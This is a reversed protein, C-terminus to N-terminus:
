KFLDDLFPKKNASNITLRYPDFLPSMIKNTDTVYKKKLQMRALERLIATYLYESPIEESVMLIMQSYDFGHRFSASVWNEGPLDEEKAYTILLMGGLAEQGYQGALTYFDSVYPMLEDPVYFVQRTEVLVYLTDKYIVRQEIKTIWTTDPVQVYEVPGPVPYPISDGPLYQIPGPVLVSDKPVLIYGRIRILATCATSVKVATDKEIQGNKVIDGIVVSVDLTDTSVCETSQSVAVFTPRDVYVPYPISDGKIWRDIIIEETCSTLMM